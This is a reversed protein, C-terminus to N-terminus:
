GKRKLQEIEAHLQEVQDALRRILVASSGVTRALVYMSQGVVDEEADDASEMGERLNAASDAADKALNEDFDMGRLTPGHASM